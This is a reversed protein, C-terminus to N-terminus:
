KSVSKNVKTKSIENTMFSQIQDEPFGFSSFRTLMEQRTIEAKWLKTLQEITERVEYPYIVWKNTKAVFFDPQYTAHPKYHLAATTVQEKKAGLESLYVLAREFTKGTDCVDDILLIQKGELRAGLGFTIQPLSQQKLDKYSQITFSAIPLNLSDSLLQSLTLGGRAIAVILDLPRGGTRIQESLVFAQTCFDSWSLALFRESWLIDM